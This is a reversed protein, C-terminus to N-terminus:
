GCIICLFKVPFGKLCYFGLFILLGDDLHSSQTQVDTQVHRQPVCELLSRTPYHHHYSQVAVLGFQVLSIWVRTSWTQAITHILHNGRGFMVQVFLFSRRKYRERRVVRGYFVIEKCIGLNRRLLLVGKNNEKYNSLIGQIPGCQQNEYTQSM